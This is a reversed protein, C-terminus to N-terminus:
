AFWVRPIVSYECVFRLHNLEDLNRIGHRGTTIFDIYKHNCACDCVDFRPTKESPAANEVPLGFEVLKHSNTVHGKRCAVYMEREIEEDNGAAAM